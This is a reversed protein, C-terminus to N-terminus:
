VLISLVTRYRPMSVILAVGAIIYYLSGGLAALWLGGAALVLEASILLIGLITAM